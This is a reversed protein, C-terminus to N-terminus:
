IRSNLRLSDIKQKYVYLKDYNNRSHFFTNVNEKKYYTVYFVLRYLHENIKQYSNFLEQWTYDEYMSNTNSPYFEEPNSQYLQNWFAINNQIKCIKEDFNDRDFLNLDKTVQLISLRLQELNIMQNFRHEGNYNDLLVKKVRKNKSVLDLRVKEWTKSFGTKLEEFIQEQVVRELGVFYETSDNYGYTKSNFKKDMRLFELLNDLTHDFKFKTSVIKEWKESSKAGEKFEYLRAGLSYVAFYIDELESKLSYEFYDFIKAGLYLEVAKSLERDENVLM